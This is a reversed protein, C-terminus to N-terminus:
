PTEGVTRLLKLRGCRAKGEPNLPVVVSALDLSEFEILCEWIQVTGEQISEGYHDQIWGLTAFNVGCGCDTGRDPNVAEELYEDPAITWHAPALRDTHGLAKYVILGETTTKFNERLWTTPNLLGRVGRLDARSLDAGGLNAESLHARRLYAGSLNVGRLHAGRLDAGSLNAGGLDAGSLDAGSLDARRLHARSLDAGSLNVGGLHAWSLNAGSLNVGSLDAGSLNAGGLDAGGLDAGRLNARQGGEGRIYKVHSAVVNDLESQDMRM